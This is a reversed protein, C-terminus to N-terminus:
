VAQAYANQHTTRFGCSRELLTVVASRRTVDAKPMLFVDFRLKNLGGVSEIWTSFREDCQLQQASPITDADFADVVHYQGDAGLGLVGVIGPVAYGSWDDLKTPMLFHM